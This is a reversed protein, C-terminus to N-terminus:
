QKQSGELDVAGGDRLPAGAVHLGLEQQVKQLRRKVYARIQPAEIPTPSQPLRMEQDRRAEIEKVKRLDDVLREKKFYEKFPIGRFPLEPDDLDM